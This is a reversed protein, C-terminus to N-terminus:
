IADTRQFADGYAQAPEPVSLTVFLRRAGERLVHAMTKRLVSKATYSMTKLAIQSLGSEFVLGMLAEIALQFHPPVHLTIFIM